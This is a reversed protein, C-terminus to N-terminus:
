MESWQAANKQGFQNPCMHSEKKSFTLFCNGDNKTFAFVSNFDVDDKM